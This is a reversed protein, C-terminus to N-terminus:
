ECFLSLTITDNHLVQFSNYRTALQIQMEKIPYFSIKEDINMFYFLNDNSSFKIDNSFTFSYTKIQYIASILLHQSSLCYLQYSSLM